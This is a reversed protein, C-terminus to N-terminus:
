KLISLKVPVLYVVACLFQTKVIYKSTFTSPLSRNGAIKGMNIRYKLTITQQEPLFEDLTEALVTISM